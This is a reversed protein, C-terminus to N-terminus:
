PVLAAFKVETLTSRSSTKVSLVGLCIAICRSASPSPRRKRRTCPSASSQSLHTPAGQARTSILKDSLALFRHIVSPAPLASITSFAQPQNIHLSPRSESDSTIRSLRRHHATRQPMPEVTKRSRGRVVVDREPDDVACCQRADRSRLDADSKSARKCDSQVARSQGQASSGFASRRSSCIPM